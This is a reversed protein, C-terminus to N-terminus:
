GVRPDGRMEEIVRLISATRFGKRDLHRALAAWDERGRRRWALAVQRAAELDDSPFSVALAEEAVDEDAGRKVLELFMRRRGIPGRRLRTEIFERATRGDDIAGVEVLRELCATIEEGSYERAELKEELQRRFHSRRALLEVAKEYCGTRDL